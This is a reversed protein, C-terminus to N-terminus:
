IVVPRSSNGMGIWSKPTGDDSYTLVQVREYDDSMFTLYSELDDVQCMTGEPWLCWQDDRDPRVEV